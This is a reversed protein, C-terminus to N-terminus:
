WQQNLKNNLGWWAPPLLVLRVTHVAKCAVLHRIRVTPLMSVIKCHLSKREVQVNVSSGCRNQIRWQLKTWTSKKRIIVIYRALRIERKSRCHLSMILIYKCPAPARTKRRPPEELIRVHEISNLIWQCQTHATLVSFDYQSKCLLQCNSLRKWCNQALKSRSFRQFGPFSRWNNQLACHLIWWAVCCVYHADRVLRLVNMCIICPTRCATYAHM